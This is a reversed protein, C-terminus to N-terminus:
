FPSDLRFLLKCLVDIDGNFRVRRAEDELNLPSPHYTPYINVGFKDSRIIKGLSETFELNPCLASFSISGLAVVLIPRITNIEMRLFTECREIHSDSPPKNDNTHCKVINTIYFSGRDIRYKGGYQQLAKAFVQGAAGVFPEGQVVENWGPNQGVVMIKPLPSMADHWGPVHPDLVHGNRKAKAWGLECMGCTKCADGIHRLMSMKDPM